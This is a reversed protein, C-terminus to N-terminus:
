QAHSPTHSPRIGRMAILVMWAYRRTFPLLTFMAQDCWHAARVVGPLKRIPVTGFTLLNFYRFNTAPFYQRILDLDTMLLPHEDETRMEPTRQRYLNIVPNHGLPEIFIASGEPKLVRRMTSLAKQLDLHHLIAGGLVVDFTGDPFTLNEADMVSFESPLRQREARQRAHAVAVPSIDIGAVHAPKMRALREVNGGNGCGYDLVMAGPVTKELFENYARTIEGNLAYYKSTAARLEGHEYSQDYHSRERELRADTAMAM